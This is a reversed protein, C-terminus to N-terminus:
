EVQAKRKDIYEQLLIGYKSAKVSSSLSNNMTDMMKINTDSVDRLAIYPAVEYDANNIVYNISVLYRRKLLSAMKREVLLISDQNGSKKAEFQEKILELNQDNFRSNLEDYANLIDQNQSGTVKAKIDFKDLATNITITDKEGFFEIRKDSNKLSLYYIEPSEIVDKLLFDNRGNVTLSDVSLILSDVQKQLYLTGKQLGKIEGKVIMTNEADNRCSSVVLIILAIFLVKKM